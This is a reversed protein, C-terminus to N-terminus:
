LEERDAWRDDMDEDEEEWGENLKSEVMKAIKEDQRAEMDRLSQQMEQRMQEMQATFTRILEELGGGPSNTVPGRDSKPTSGQMEDELRRLKPAREKNEDAVRAEYHQVKARM